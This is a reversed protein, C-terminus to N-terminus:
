QATQPKWGFVVNMVTQDPIGNETELSKMRSQYDEKIQALVDLPLQLLPKSLPHRLTSEWAAIAEDM